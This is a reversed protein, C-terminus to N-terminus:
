KHTEKSRRKPIFELIVALAMGGAISIAWEMRSMAMLVLLLIVMVAALKQLM